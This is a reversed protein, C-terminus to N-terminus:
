TPIEVWLVTNGDVVQVWNPTQNENILGWVLPTTVLGLAQVGTVAVNSAVSV